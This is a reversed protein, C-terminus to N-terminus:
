DKTPAELVEFWLDQNNLGGYSITVEEGARISRTTMIDITRNEVNVEYTANPAPAHNYISGLGLAIAGEGTPWSYYYDFLPTQDILPLQSVPILIVPCIEILSKEPLDAVAFVGLGHIASRGFRLLTTV